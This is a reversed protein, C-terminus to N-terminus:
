QDLGHDFHPEWFDDSQVSPFLRVKTMMESAYDFEFRKLHIFLVPPFHLFKIGKQAAQLGHGEAMYKNEGDLKEVEVYQDFSRYITDCNRVNLSIDLVFFQSSFISQAQSSLSIYAGYFEEKRQSTFDIDICKIYSLALGKFLDAIVGEARTGKMKNELNDCLVRNLEQVDHQTFADSDDWGFSKTLELTDVSAKGFQLNYFLRQLALPITVRESELDGDTPLSYVAQRFKGLHFLTQLLSNMYCTAGQNKLGVLNIDTESEDSVNGDGEGNLPPLYPDVTVALQVIQVGNEERM